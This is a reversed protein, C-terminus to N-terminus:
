LGQVRVSAQTLSVSFRLADGWDGTRECWRFILMYSHFNSLMSAGKGTICWHIEKHVETCQMAGIPAATGSFGTEIYGSVGKLVRAM